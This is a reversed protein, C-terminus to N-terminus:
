YKAVLYVKLYFYVKNRTLFEKNAFYLPLQTAAFPIFANKRHPM